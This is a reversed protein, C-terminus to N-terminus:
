VAHREGVERAAALLTAALENPDATHRLWLVEHGQAKAKVAVAQVGKYTSRMTREPDFPADNGKARRRQLVRKVCVDFPTDMFAYLWRNRHHRQESMAGMAGYTKGTILGEFIVLNGKRSYKRLLALRDEKDSITDMGGCATEYKGLIYTSSFLEPPVAPHDITYGGIRPRGIVSTQNVPTYLFPRRVVAQALIANVVSSKGSGNCGGLKVIVM